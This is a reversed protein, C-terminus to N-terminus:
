GTRLARELALRAAEDRATAATLVEGLRALWEAVSVPTTSLRIGRVVHSVSTETIGLAPTRFALEWEGWLVTVGAPEGPRGALRDAVTRRREVRLMAPPLAGALTTVLVHALLGLEVRQFHALVLRGLVDDSKQPETM